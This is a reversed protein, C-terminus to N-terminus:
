CNTLMWDRLECYWYACQAAMLGFTAFTSPLGFPELDAPLVQNNLIASAVLEGAIAAPTVGSGGMRMVDWIRNPLAGIQLM